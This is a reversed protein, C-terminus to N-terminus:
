VQDTALGNHYQGRIMEELQGVSNSAKTNISGGHYTKANPVHPKLVDISDSEEYNESGDGSHREQEAGYNIVSIRKQAGGPRGTFDKLSDSPPTNKYEEGDDFWPCSASMTILSARCSRSRVLLPRRSSSFDRASLLTTSENKLDTEGRTEASPLPSSEKLLDADGKTGESTLPSSENKLDADGKTGPEYNCHEKADFSPPLLSDVDEASLLDFDEIINLRPEIMEICRVEKCHGEFDPSSLPSIEEQSMFTPASSSHYLPVIARQEDSKGSDQQHYDTCDSYAPSDSSM